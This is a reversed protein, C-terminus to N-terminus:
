RRADLHADAAVVHETNARFRWESYGAVWVASFAWLPLGMLGEVFSAHSAASPRFGNLLLPIATAMALGSVVGTGLGIGVAVLRSFAQATGELLIGLVAGVPVAFPLAFMLSLPVPAVVSTFLSAGRMTGGLFYSFFYFGVLYVGSALAGMLMGLLARWKLTLPGYMPWHDIVGIVAYGLAGLAGLLFLLWVAGWVKPGIAAM